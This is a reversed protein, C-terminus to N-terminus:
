QYYPTMSALKLEGNEETLTVLLPRITDSKVDSRLLGNNRYIAYDVRYAVIEGNETQPSIEINYIMQVTLTTPKYDLDSFSSAYMAQVAKADGAMACQFYRYFFQVADSEQAVMDEEVSYTTGEFPNHYYLRSDMEAYVENDLRNQEDDEPYFEIIEDRSPHNGGTDDKNNSTAGFLNKVLSETDILSFLASLLVVAVCFIVIAKCIKQSTAKKNEKQENQEKQEKREDSNSAKKM